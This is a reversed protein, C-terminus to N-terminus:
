CQFDLMRVRERLSHLRAETELLEPFTITRYTGDRARCVVEAQKGNKPNASASWLGHALSNRVSAVEEVDALLASRVDTPDTASLRVTDRWLKIIPTRDASLTRGVARRGTRLSKEMDHELFAWKLLVEGVAALLDRMDPALKEETSM